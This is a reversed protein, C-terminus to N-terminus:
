KTVEIKDANANNNPPTDRDSSSVNSSESLRECEGKSSSSQSSACDEMTRLGVRVEAHKPKKLISKTPTNSLSSILRVQESATAAGAAESTVPHLPPSISPVREDGSSGSVSNSNSLPAASSSVAAPATVNQGGGIFDLRQRHVSPYM